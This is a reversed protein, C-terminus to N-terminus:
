KKLIHVVQYVVFALFLVFIVAPLLWGSFSIADKQEVVKVMGSATSSYHAGSDDYEMAAFVVYTSGKLAGFSSIDLETKSEGRAPLNMSTEMPTVKLEKPAFIRVSIRHDATDLNRLELALKRVQGKDGIELENIKGSIQSSRTEKIVMYQPAVSSFPYYNADKYETLLAIAYKGPKASPDLELNFTGKQPLNPDMKGMAIQNSRMGSPLMLSLEVDYAAEDGTNSMTVNVTTKDGSVIPEMDISLPSMTIYKASSSATLALLAVSALFLRYITKKMM